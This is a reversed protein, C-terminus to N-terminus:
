VDFLRKLGNTITRITAAEIILTSHEYFQDEEERDMIDDSVRDGFKISKVKLDSDVKFAVTDPIELGLETVIMGNIIHEEVQDFLPDSGSFSAKGGHLPDELKCNDAVNWDRLEGSLMEMEDLLVRTLKNVVNEGMWRHLKIRVDMDAAVQRLQDLMLDSDSEKSTLIVFTGAREDFYANIFSEVIPAGPLMELTVTEGIQRVEERSPKRGVMEEKVRKDIARKVAAQPLKRQLKKLRIFHLQDFSAVLDSGGISPVWGFAEVQQDLLDDPCLRDEMAETMEDSNLRYVLDIPDDPTYIIANKIM